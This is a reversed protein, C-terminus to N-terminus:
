ANAKNVNHTMFDDTIASQPCTPICAGCQTCDDTNLQPQPISTPQGDTIYTFKIAHPECEDRCSQCYV